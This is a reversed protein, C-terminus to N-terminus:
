RERRALPKVASTRKRRGNKARAASQERVYRVPTEPGVKGFYKGRVGGTFDYEPLMEPDATTKSDRKM